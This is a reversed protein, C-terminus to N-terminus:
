IMSYPIALASGATNVTVPASGSVANDAVTAAPRFLTETDRDPRPLLMPGSVGGPLVDCAFAPLAPPVVTAGASGNRASVCGNLTPIPGAAL